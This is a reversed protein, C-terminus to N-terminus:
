LAGGEPARQYTRITTGGVTQSGKCDCDVPEAHLRWRAPRQFRRCASAPGAGRFILSQPGESLKCVACRVRLLPNPSTRLAKLLHGCQQLRVHENMHDLHTAHFRLLACPTGDAGPSAHSKGKGAKYRQQLHQIRDHSAGCSACHVASGATSGVPVKVCTLAAYRITHATARLEVRQRAVVPFRSLVANGLHSGATPMPIGREHSQMAARDIWDAVCM